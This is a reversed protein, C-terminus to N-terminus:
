LPCSGAARLEREMYDLSKGLEQTPVAISYRYFQDSAGYESGPDGIFLTRELFAALAKDDLGLGSFDIWVVYTAHAPVIRAKPLLVAFRETLIRRNERIVDRLALVFDRGDPGCARLFGAYLMPDISGYHDAYKQRVYRERLTDNPIFVNAHNIGSLGMCKGMSSCTLALSDPRAAKGYPTVTGELAVDAFIEDCFVPVSYTRSMGDIRRLEEESLVLGTPNNPNCLVLLASSPQAMRRELDDFDVAYRGDEYIMTSVTVGRGLRRAAQEYRSYGPHIVVISQGPETFLRIATALAFITGHTPVVWAPDIDWDRMHKQWWAAARDYEGSQPTFAYLGREACARVGDSFAPCAPFEFEAGRYGVLGADFVAQPTLAQKLSGSGTRDILKDFEFSQM